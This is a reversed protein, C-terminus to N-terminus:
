TSARRDRSAFEFGALTALGFLGTRATRSDLIPIVQGQNLQDLESRHERNINAKSHFASVFHWNRLLCRDRGVFSIANRNQSERIQAAHNSNSYVADKFM